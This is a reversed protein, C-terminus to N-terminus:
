VRKVWTNVNERHVLENKGVYLSPNWSALANHKRGQSIKRRNSNFADRSGQCKVVQLNERELLSCKMWITNYLTSHYRFSAMLFCAKSIKAQLPIEKHLQLSRQLEM